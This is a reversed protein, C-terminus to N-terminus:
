TGTTSPPGAPAQARVLAKFKAEEAAERDARIAATRPRALQRAELDLLIPWLLRRPIRNPDIGNSWLSTLAWASFSGDRVANLGFLATEVPLVLAEIDARAILDHAEALTLRYNAMLLWCAAVAIDPGDYEGRIRNDEYLSDWVECNLDPIFDALLWTRGDALVAPTGTLVPQARAAPELPDPPAGTEPEPEFMPEPDLEISTM